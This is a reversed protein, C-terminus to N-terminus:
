FAKAMERFAAASAAHNKAYRAMANASMISFAEPNNKWLLLTQAAKPAFEEEAKIVLGCEPSMMEGICGRQWAIVPAGAAMAEHIALPEAENLYKSPFLLADIGQFFERKEEGYKSGLYVVNGGEKAAALVAQRAQGDYFPGAIIFKVPENRKRMIEATRLFELIGKEVMINGLYGVSSLSRRKEGPEFTDGITAANSAPIIPGEINYKGKLKDGMGRCLVLHTAGPGAAALLARFVTKKYILYNFSHHQIFIKLGFLRAPLIFLIDYIQGNGGNISIYMARSKGRALAAMLGALRFMVVAPRTVKEIFNVYRVAPSKSFSALPSVNFLDVRLGTERALELVYQNVVTIGRVPPPTSGVFLLGGEGAMVVPEANEYPTTM